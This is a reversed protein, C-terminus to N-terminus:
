RESAFDARGELADALVAANAFEIERGAPLGRALRTVRVPRKALANALYLATGDGELTPSLGLIVENIRVSAFNHEPHDIRDLLTNITLDDPNIDELPSIRGLLVHYTGNYMATQEFVVVDKPQEVVLVTSRDRRPDEGIACHEADTFNFSIPCYKVSNKVDAVASALDMAQDTPSRLIHMALREASRKGIGPLKAFSEILHVVSPPYAKTIEDLITQKRKKSM